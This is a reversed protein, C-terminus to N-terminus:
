SHSCRSSRESLPYAAAAGAIASGAAITEAGEAAAVAGAVAPGAVLAAAPGPRAGVAMGAKWAPYAALVASVM